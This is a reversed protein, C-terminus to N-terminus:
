WIQLPCLVTMVAGSIRESRLYTAGNRVLVVWQRSHDLISALNRVKQGETIKQPSPFTPRFKQTLKALEEYLILCTSPPVGSQMGDPLYLLVSHRRWIWRAALPWAFVAVSKSTLEIIFQCSIFNQLVPM